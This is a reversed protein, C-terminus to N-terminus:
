TRRGAVGGPGRQDVLAWGEEVDHLLIWAGLHRQLLQDRHEGHDLRADVGDGRIRAVARFCYLERDDDILPFGLRGTRHLCSCAGLEDLVHRHAALHGARDDATSELERLIVDSWHDHNAESRANRGNAGEHLVLEVLLATADLRSGHHDEVAAPMLLFLEEVLVLPLHVLLFANQTRQHARELEILGVVRRLLDENRILHGLPRLQDTVVEQFLAAVEEHAARSDGRRRHLFCQLRRQHLVALISRLM